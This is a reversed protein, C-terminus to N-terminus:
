ETELDFVREGEWGLLQGPAGEEGFFLVVIEGGVWGLWDRDEGEAAFGEVIVFGEEGGAVAGWRECESVEGSGLEAFGVGVAPREEVQVRFVCFEDRQIVVDGGGELEEGPSVVGQEIM